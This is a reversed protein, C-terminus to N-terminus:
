LAATTTHVGHVDTVALERPGDSLVRAYNQPEWGLQLEYDVVRGFSFVILVILPAAFFSFQWLLHVRPLAGRIDFRSRM